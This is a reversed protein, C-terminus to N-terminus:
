KAQGALYSNAADCMAKVNEPRANTPIDCGSAVIYGTPGIDRCLGHVYERVEEPKGFALLQPPVDGLICMHDGLIERAIKAPDGLSSVAEEESQGDEMRDDILEDYYSLTRYREDRPLTHLAASLENLFLQKTM